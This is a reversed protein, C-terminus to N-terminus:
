CLHAASMRIAGLAYYHIHTDTGQGKAVSQLTLSKGVNRETSCVVGICSEDLFAIKLLL